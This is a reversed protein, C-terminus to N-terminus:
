INDITEVEQLGYYKGLYEVGDEMTTEIPFYAKNSKSKLNAIIENGCINWLIAKSKSKFENYMIYVINNCLEHKNSCVSFLEKEIEGFLISFKDKEKKEDDSENEYDEQIYKREHTNLEYISHYKKLISFIKNYVLSNKNVQINKNMLITYDFVKEDKIYKIDFDVDEVYRCLENTTSKNTFVPLYRYYNRVFKKERDTKNRSNLLVDLRCGFMARCIRKSSGIHQKYAKMLSPYIYVMFYGKKDGVLKNNFYKRQKEEESDLEYNIKERKSWYKPTPIYLNGKGADIASGQHFRLLDIRKTLEVYEKSDKSYQERLCIFSTALNTIFGIKTNFSKTDMKALNGYSINQEKVTSKEYTLTNLSRDISSILYKNDSTLLLDGDTDADSARMLATDWANLIVGSKITSYWDECSKDSYVKMVQNEHPSVLPSRMVAVEESEKTVWRYNWLQNEKLLGKPTLGFVYECFMYPDVIAFEYSGEVMPKGIKIQDIKNQISKYIRNKVYTDNLIEENYMLAKAIDMSASQEIKSLKKDSEHYGLLYLLVYIREYTCVNKVWDISFDALKKINDPTFFNSQIYQYNLTTLYNDKEKNVRSCGWIHNYKTHFEIYEEWDKYKKWMKFQSTTLIVDIDDIHKVNGWADTIFEKHVVEKAFKKWDFVVCLGKIWASRVIYASPEYETIGLDKNWQKSMEISILGSGDWVNQTVNMTRTEIDREGNDKQYIWDIKQDKLTLEYDKVVCVRPTSVLNTSSSYLSFYASFKALNIKGIKKSNLGCYMIEELQSHLKEIVFLVTNRRLQGAGACLRKYTVGNVSFKEKSIKNYEKKTTDAHVSVVDPIYLIDDIQKQYENIKISNEQSKPKSKIINREKYLEAIKLRQKDFDICKIDRIFKLVQNDGISVVWGYKKADEFSTTINSKSELITSINLKLIYFLDIKKALVLGEV